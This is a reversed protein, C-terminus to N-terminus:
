PTPAKCQLRDIEAAILAGAKTLTRIPDNSLKWWGVSWPWQSPPMIDTMTERGHLVQASAAMAYSAAAASLEGRTHEADHLASWGEVSIQRVRENTILEVGTKMKTKTM